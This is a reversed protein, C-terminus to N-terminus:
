WSEKFPCNLLVAQIQIQISVGFKQTTTYSFTNIKAPMKSKTKIKLCFDKITMQTKWLKLRRFTM